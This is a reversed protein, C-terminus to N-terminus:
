HISNKFFNTFFIVKAILVLAIKLFTNFIKRIAVQKQRNTAHPISTSSKKIKNKPSPRNCFGSFLIFFAPVFLGVGCKEQPPVGL